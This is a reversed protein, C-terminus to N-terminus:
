CGDRRQGSPESYQVVKSTNPIIELQKLSINYNQDELGSSFSLVDTGAGPSYSKTTKPPSSVCQVPSAIVLFAGSREATPACLFTSFVSSHNISCVRVPSVALNRSPAPKNGHRPLFFSLCVDSFFTFLTLISNM